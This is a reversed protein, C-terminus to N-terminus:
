LKSEPCASNWARVFCQTLAASYPLKPRSYRELHRRARALAADKDSQHSEILDELDDLMLSLVSERAAVLWERNLDFDTVMRTAASRKKMAKVTGDPEFQFKGDLKDKDPRIYGGRKPWKDSKAGNCGGCGLLYNGWDYALSPFISKPKFHEVQGSHSANIPTECYACKFHSLKGLPQKAAGWISKFYAKKKSNKPLTDPAFATFGERRVANNIGLREFRRAERGFVEIDPVAKQVKTQWSPPPTLASLDIAIM